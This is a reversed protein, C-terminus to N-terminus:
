EPAQPFCGDIIQGAASFNHLFTKAQADPLGDVFQKFRQQAEEFAAEPKRGARVDGTTVVYDAVADAEAPDFPQFASGVCQVIRDRVIKMGRARREAPVDKIQPALYQEVHAYMQAAVRAAPNDARAPIPSAVACAALALVFIRGKIVDVDRQRTAVAM